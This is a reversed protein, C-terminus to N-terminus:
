YDNVTAGKELSIYKIMWGVGAFNQTKKYRVQVVNNNSIYNAPKENGCHQRVVKEKDVGTRSADTLEEETDLIQLYDTGCSSKSGLDFVEFRLAVVLNTPVRVTWLCEMRTRNNNPYLPSTFIGGYSFLEGGCGRGQDTAVYTADLSLSVFERDIAPIVLRLVNTSTFIPNPTVFNCYEGVLRDEGSGDYAKIAHIACDVNYLFFINFYLAITYNQPVEISVTCAEDKSVESQQLRGQLATYNQLCRSSQHVRLVVGRSEITSDSEFKVYVRNTISVYTGPLKGTGCYIHNGNPYRSGQYFSTKIASHGNFIVTSGLGEYIVPKMSADQISLSDMCQKKQDDYPQLDMQMFQIEIQKGAAVELEWLCKTNPPYRKQEGYNPTNLTVIAGGTLNHKMAGCLSPVISINADFLTGQLMSDTKYRLHLASGFTTQTAVPDNGCFRGILQSFVSAGDRLEVFNDSCDSVNRETGVHFQSFSVQLTYGSPAEYIVECDMIRANDNGVLTLKASPSREDLKYQKDCAPTYLILASMMAVTSTFSETKFVVLGHSGTIAIPPAQATLNGCLLALRHDSTPELGRYVEVQHFYCSETHEIDLTEFRVTVKEGAPIKIYWRCTIAPRYSGDPPMHEPSRIVSTNTINGGCSDLRYEFKFGRAQTYRDTKFVIAARDQVRFRGPPSKLCYTAMKEWILPEAFQLKRYVTVNDYACVSSILTDELEFDIFNFVIGGDNSNALFTYNCTQMNNYKDPYNPSVVVKTEQSAYFIGGCNSEWNITFGDSEISDDTHFVVKMDTDTSNFTPPTEKGCVRGLSIWEDGRRDFLEVYDKTCNTSKELSFREVFSVGIHQGPNARLLWVCEQNPRYKGKELPARFRNSGHHLTGGCGFTKSSLRLEFDGSKSYTTTHYEVFLLHKQTAITWGPKPLNEKCFRGLMPSLPTPGNYVTLYETECTLQPDFRTFNIEILTQDPYSISWACHLAKDGFAGQPRSINGVTAFRGGCQNVRYDMKFSQPLFGNRVLVISTDHFPSLVMQQTANQCFRKLTLSGTFAAMARHSIEICMRNYTSAIVERFNMVLTGLNPKLPDNSLSGQTRRYTCVVTSVNTPSEISGESGNLDSDCLTSQDSSFRLRFGREGSNPRALYIVLMVNNSSYIPGVDRSSTASTIVKIQAEYYLGDFFWMRHHWFSVGSDEIDLDLFEIKVRRGLPVTIRWDCYTSTQFDQGYGRSTIEGSEANVVHSCRSHDLAYNLRFGRWVANAKFTTFVIKVSPLLSVIPQTPITAGCFTGVEFATANPGPFLTYIKVNDNASCNVSTPLHLDDFTFNLKGHLGEQIYYECVTASPYGGPQPYNKSSITGRPGRVAGGCKVLSVQLKFRAHTEARNNFYKVSLANTKTVIRKSIVSTCTNMLEPVAETLGERLSIYEDKCNPLRAFFDVDVFQAQLLEGAPALFSWFCESHPGPVDPYNPSLVTTSNYQSRLVMSGGCEISVERYLLRFKNPGAMRNPIYRVFARNSSTQISSPIEVGSYRGLLPSYQDIGNRIVVFGERILTSTGLASINLHEFSFEITRGARVSINWFCENMSDWRYPLDSAPLATADPQTIVGNPDTLLGGCRLSVTGIFGTRNMYYDSRFEVKLYPVGDYKRKMRLGYTCIRGFSKWTLLDTSSFVEVYDALCDSTEDLDIFSFDLYPHYTPIASQLIWSCNLGTQYGNPYGPSSLNYVQDTGNLVITTHGGCFNEDSESSSEETESAKQQWSLSFTSSDTVDSHDLLIYVVNTTSVIPDPKTFGCATLLPVATDDYGDYIILTGECMFQDIAQRDIAFNNFKIAIVSGIDVTIRWGINEMQTYGKPYMPSTVTGSSGSIESLTDYSYEALFGKAVGVGNSRFKIWFSSAETLNKPIQNGCFDGLLPGGGNGERIELYDENCNDSSQIDMEKIFLSMKNGPSASLEWICEVNLPYTDPYNPSAFEGALATLRGGCANELTTYTMDIFLNDIKQLYLDESSILVTLANGRSVIAPPIKHGCGEFRMPGDTTEGEYVTVTAYCEGEESQMDFINLHVITLTIRQTEVPAVLVWTCNDSSMKHAKNLTISGPMTVMIRSGCSTQYSAQFGKAEYMEDSQFTVLLENGTTSVTTINSESGCVTLLLKDIARVNGDYVKLSDGSCNDSKHIAWDKLAFQLTHSPDTRVIWSCSANSPYNSPYNPSSIYGEHNIIRGGCKQNSTTYRARFGKHTFSSDSYFRLFLQNSSSVINVPEKQEHCLTVLPNTFNADSAVRLGDFRCDKGTEMHFDEVILNIVTEPETTITWHCETEKPYPNPYNPSSLVGSPKTLDGGCGNISWEARFGMQEGSSDTHFILDLTRGLSVMPKPKGACYRRTIPLDGTGMEQLELYDFPCRQSSNQATQSQGISEFDFHSFELNIRNGPPVTITWRCDMLSSYENPFNPSEIFGGYGTINRKCIINYKLQFGRRHNTDDTRMRIYAHNSETNLVIPDTDSSCFRGLKKGSVDFGDYIDLYDYQCNKHSEMDLDTFVIHIASGLSTSIRWVCMSNHGYPQPYNPSIISGRPSTLVGGCGTTASDWEIQFGPYNRSGDSYFRLYLQHSFSITGNFNDEGCFNGILPASSSGGNRITLGDYRCTRHNEMMFNRVMLMIQQGMPVTIIWECVKNSLYNKPWGPSRIIGSTAFYNGGCTKEVDIFTFALSFGDRSSSSDTVFRITLMNGSSTITPPKESGCYRGVMSHAMSSNDFIQVYDYMCNASPELEFSNWTLQVAHGAPAVIIWECRSDHQYKGTEAIAPSRIIIDEKTLVGGCSVNFFTFNGKFGRGGVSGDSVFRVLMINKSSITRPPAKSSCYRGLLTVNSPILGDYLEVYDLECSPYSNREIEFDLFDFAIAQGLPAHIIYDCLQDASYMQPYSPSKIEMGPETFTGGCKIKYTVSFGPHPASWDTHFKLLLTNGTSTYQPPIRDGCFKGLSPAATNSGDYIELYDFKCGESQELVFKNFRIDVRSETPLKILYECNLNNPYVNDTQSLPSTITGERATYIGGCGPVGEVVSYSIQFGADNGNEDSHFYVTAKNSPTVLPEPHTTNCYKALLTGEDEVGDTIQVFDYNCNEHSEIKMTFFTFQLRRGQPAELYWKCDRNPPYNGPTGPSTIIGHSVANVTGGCVPDISEWKLEFGEHATSNDSRFWLYLMNHSSIFNGGHPLSNGCFRGFKYAQSTRGDHIQLWDYMCEGNSVANELNFKTFTVNLVQTDNTKILWACRANHNYTGNLEPYRLTGSLQYRINGCARVNTQCRPGTYGNQCRCMARNLFPTCTGGNMCPNPECPSQTSICNPSNTGPPCTCSYNQADIKLCTGGNRCPGSACPNLSARYCGSPGFGTGIYGPMCICNPVASGYDVCRAMPHCLGPTCRTGQALCTRGDGTYGPPCSGCQYSGRTNICAVSPSTSCGGNNTECENIDVCYFGNGTYGAPCAGCVFSGPLNICSVEPDKSCHPRSESCEDVDVTCAPSLGNTKWGQDCICRYGDKAQVCTGHGCLDSGATSCDQARTTCHIGRYGDPCMCTYGGHTNKCTAGNQCGLDTGAFHACENVDATCTPGDWSSPCLCFFSDYTSICTGGNQCPGSSCRNTQLTTMLTALKTEVSRVRRALAGIRPTQSASRNSSYKELAEVRKILGFPGSVYTALLQIQDAVNGGPLFPQSDGPRGDIMKSLTQMMHDVCIGGINLHGSGKLHFTINKDQASEFTIHGNTALIKAQDEFGGFANDFLGVLALFAWYLRLRM